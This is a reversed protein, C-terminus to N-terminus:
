YGELRCPFSLTRHGINVKLPVCEGPKVNLNDCSVASNLAMSATKWEHDSRSQSPHFLRVLQALQGAWDLYSVCFGTSSLGKINNIEKITALIM